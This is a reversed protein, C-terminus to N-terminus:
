KINRLKRFGIVFKYIAAIGAPISLMHYFLGGFGEAYSVGEILAVVFLWMFGYGFEGWVKDKKSQLQYNGKM